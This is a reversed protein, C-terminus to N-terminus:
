MGIGTDAGPAGAGLVFLAIYLVVLFFQVHRRNLRGVFLTLENLYSKM